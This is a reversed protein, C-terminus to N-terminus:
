IGPLLSTYTDGACIRLNLRLVPSIIQPLILTFVSFSFNEASKYILVTLPMGGYSAWLRPLNSFIVGTKGSLLILRSVGFAGTEMRIILRTEGIPRPCRPIITYGGFVALALKKKSDSFNM